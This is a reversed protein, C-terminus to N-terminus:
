CLRASARNYIAGQWYCRSQTLASHTVHKHILLAVFILFSLSSSTTSSAGLAIGDAAAHIVLGATTSSPRPGLGGSNSATPDQSPTMAEETATAHTNNFSFQGLSVQFSEPQSRKSFHQPLKDILYMLIFGCIVSVGIWAHPERESALHTDLDEGAKTSIVEPVFASFGDDPGSRLGDGLINSDELTSIRRWHDRYQDTSFVRPQDINRQGLSRQEDHSHSNGSAKYLTEVGEPIIIILSTGVLVGTGLATILRLQRPSLSFSLPLLGALFSRCTDSDLKSRIVIGQHIKRAM